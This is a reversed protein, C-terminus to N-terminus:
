SVMYAKVKWAAFGMGACAEGSHVAEVVVALRVGCLYLGPLSVTPRFGSPCQVQPSCIRPLLQLRIEMVLMYGAPEQGPLDFRRFYFERQGARATHNEKDDVMADDPPRLAEREALWNVVFGKQEATPRHRIEWIAYADIANVVWHGSPV